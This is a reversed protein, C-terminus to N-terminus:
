GSALTTDTCSGRPAVHFLGQDGQQTCGLSSESDGPAGLDSSIVAVHLNPIGMPLAAIMNMFLPIQETLKTQIPAMASGNAIVFLIDLNGPGTVDPASAAATRTETSSAAPPACAAM